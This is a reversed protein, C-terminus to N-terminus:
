VYDFISIQGAGELKEAKTSFDTVNYKESIKEKMEDSDIFKYSAFEITYDIVEYGDSFQAGYLIDKDCDKPQMWLQIFDVTEIEIFEM